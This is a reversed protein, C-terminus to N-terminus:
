RKGSRREAGLIRACERCVRTGQPTIRSSIALDHGRKCHTKRYGRAPRAPNDLLERAAKRRREGLHPLVANVFPEIDTWRDLAWRWFVQKGHPPNYPGSVRGIGVLDFFRRVVDEDVSSFTVRRAVYPEKRSFFTGEGELIGVVWGFDVPEITEWRRSM